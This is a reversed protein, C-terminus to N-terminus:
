NDGQFKPIFQRKVNTKKERNRGKLTEQYSKRERESEKDLVFQSM